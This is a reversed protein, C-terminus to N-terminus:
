ISMDMITQQGWGFYHAVQITHTFRTGYAEKTDTQNTDTENETVLEGVNRHNGLNSVETNQITRTKEVSCDNATQQYSVGIAKTSAAPSWNSCDKAGMVWESITPEGASWQEQVVAINTFKINDLPYVLSYSANSGTTSLSALLMILPTLKYNKM